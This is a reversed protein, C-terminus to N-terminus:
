TNAFHRQTGNSSKNEYEMAVVRDHNPDNTKLFLHDVHIDVRLLMKNKLNKMRLINFM